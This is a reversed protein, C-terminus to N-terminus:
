NSPATAPLTTGVNPDMGGVDCMQMNPLSASAGPELNVDGETMHTEDAHFRVHLVNDKGPIRCADFNGDNLTLEGSDALTKPDYVTACEGSTMGTVTFTGGFGSESPSIQTIM